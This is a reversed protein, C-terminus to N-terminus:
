GWTWKELLLPMGREEECFKTKIEDEGSKKESSMKGNDETNKLTGWFIAPSHTTVITPTTTPPSCTFEHLCRPCRGEPQTSWTNERRTTDVVGQERMGEDRCERFGM